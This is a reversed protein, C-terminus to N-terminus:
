TGPTGQCDDRWLCDQEGCNVITQFCPHNGEQVQLARILDAKKLRSFNKLGRDRALARIEAVTM